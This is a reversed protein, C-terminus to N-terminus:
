ARDGGDVRVVTGTIYPNALVYLVTDVIASAPGLKRLPLERQLRKITEASLAAHTSPTDIFGPSIAVCRIGLPGLERAWTHTLSEVGAKAAAYASQGANGAAAVSSLNIVAGKSRNTVMLDAAHVTANFTTTLNADIVNRWAESSHRREEGRGLLNILPASFIMGACNILGDLGGLAQAAEAVARGADTYDGLDAQIYAAACVGDTDAGVRDIGVVQAGQDSLAAVIARGIDGAAGTVIIRRGSLGPRM